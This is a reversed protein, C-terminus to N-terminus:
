STALVSWWFGSVCHLESRLVKQTHPAVALIGVSSGSRDPWKSSEFTGCFM